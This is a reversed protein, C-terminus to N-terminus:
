GLTGGGKWFDPWLELPGHPRNAQCFLLVDHFHDELMQSLGVEFIQLKRPNPYFPEFFLSQGDPEGKTYLDQNDGWVM